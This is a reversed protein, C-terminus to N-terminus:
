HIDKYVVTYVHIYRRISYIYGNYVFTYCQYIKNYERNKYTYHIM